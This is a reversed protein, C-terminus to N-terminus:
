QDRTRTERLIADPSVFYPNHVVHGGVIMAPHTRLVDMLTSGDFKRADYECIATCPAIRVYHNVKTEYAMLDALGVRKRLVWSMDGCVRAGSYGEEQTAHRCFSVAGDLLAVPDFTGGPCYATENDVTVIDKDLAARAVGESELEARYHEPAVTDVIHLVKHHSGLSKALFQAMTMAREADDNFIYCLHMGQPFPDSFDYVASADTTLM